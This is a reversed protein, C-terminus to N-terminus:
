STGSPDSLQMSKGNLSIIAFRGVGQALKGGAFDLDFVPEKLLAIVSRTALSKQTSVIEVVRESPFGLRQYFQLRVGSGIQVLQRTLADPTWEAFKRRERARATEKKWVDEEDAPSRLELVPLVHGDGSSVLRQVEADLMEGVEHILVGALPPAQEREKPRFRCEEIKTSESLRDWGDYTQAEANLRLPLAGEVIRSMSGLLDLDGFSTAGFWTKEPLSTGWRETVYGGPPKYYRLPIRLVSTATNSLINRQLARPVLHRKLVRHQHATLAICNLSHAFPTVTPPSVLNVRM